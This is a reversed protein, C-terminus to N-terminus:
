SQEKLERLARTAAALNEYDITGFMLADLARLDIPRYHGTREINQRIEDVTYTTSFLYHEPLRHDLTPDQLDKDLVLWAHRIPVEASCVVWGEHYDLWPELRTHQAELMIQQCNAFCQKRQPRIGAARLLHKLEPRLHGYKAASM